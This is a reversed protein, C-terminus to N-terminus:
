MASMRMGNLAPMSVALAFTLIPALAVLWALAGCSGRNLCHVVHVSLAISALSMALGVVDLGDLPMSKYLHSAFTIAGLVLALRTSNESSNWFKAIANGYM